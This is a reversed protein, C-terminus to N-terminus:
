AAMSLIRGRKQASFLMAPLVIFFRTQSYYGDAVNKSGSCYALAYVLSSASYATAFWVNSRLVSRLTESCPAQLAEHYTTVADEELFYAAITRITDVAEVALGTANAFAEAHKKHFTALPRFKMIGAGLLIPICGLLVVAIRWAVIHSLIVGAIMSSIISMATGVITGTLGAITNRDTTIYSLLTAPTRGDSRHWEEDRALLTSYSAIRIWELVSESVRGFFFNM